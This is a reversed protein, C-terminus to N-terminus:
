TADETGSETSSRLARDLESFQRAANAAAIRIRERDTASYPQAAQQLTQEGMIQGLQQLQCRPVTCDLSRIANETKESYCIAFVPREYLLALVMAHYRTALVMGANAVLGLAQRRSVQPYHLQRIGAKNPLQALIKEIVLQDQQRCFSFLIVQQGRSQASQIVEIHFRLYDAQYQQLDQRGDKAIPAPCVLLYGQEAPLKALQRDCGFVIDPAWSVNKLRHFLAQSAKDRFCVSHARALISRYRDLYWDDQFPGFNCGLVFTDSTIFFEHWDIVDLGSQQM